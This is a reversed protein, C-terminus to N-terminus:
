GPRSFGWSAALADAAHEPDTIDGWGGNWLHAHALEHAIVYHAFAEACDSLRKKLVVSRSGKWVVDGPCAMWVTGGRGPVHNDLAIQFCPDNLLGAVVDQPIAALVAVVRMRLEPEEISREVYDRVSEAPFKHSTTSSDHQMPYRSAQQGNKVPLIPCNISDDVTFSKRGVFLPSRFQEERLGAMQSYNRSM